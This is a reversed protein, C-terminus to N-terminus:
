RHGIHGYLRQLLRIAIIANKLMVWTYL